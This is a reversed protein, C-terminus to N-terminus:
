FRSSETSDAFGMLGVFTQLKGLDVRLEPTSARVEVHNALKWSRQSRVEAAGHRQLLILLGLGYSFVIRLKSRSPCGEVCLSTPDVVRSQEIWLILGGVKEHVSLVVLTSMSSTGAAEPRSALLYLAVTCEASRESGLVPDRRGERRRCPRHRNPVSSCSVNAHAHVAGFAVVM